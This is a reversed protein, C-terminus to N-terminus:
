KLVDDIDEAIRSTKEDVGYGDDVAKSWQYVAEPSIDIEGDNWSIIGHCVSFNRFVEEDKLAKFASGKLCDADFRRVEGNSFTVLM